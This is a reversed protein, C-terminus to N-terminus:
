NVEEVGSNAAIRYTKQSQPHTATYVFFNDVMTEETIEVGNCAPPYDAPPITSYAFDSSHILLQRTSLEKLCAQSQSNFARERTVVLNPILVAALVTITAIVM